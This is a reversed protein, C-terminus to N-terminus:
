DSLPIHCINHFFALGMLQEVHTQLDFTSSLFDKQYARLLGGRPENEIQGEAKIYIYYSQIHSIIAELFTQSITQTTGKFVRGSKTVLIKCDHLQILTLPQFEDSQIAHELCKKMADKYNM